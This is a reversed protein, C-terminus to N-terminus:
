KKTNAIFSDLDTFTLQNKKLWQYNKNWWKYNLLFKIKETSFRYRILRAPVGGVIAYPAVNKTVVAGAGIIAGDGIYCGDLIIVGDGVWVDNGIVIKKTEEFYSKDAFTIQAQRKTSFFIPHTSVFYKSPHNGLGCRVNSAISCFKGIQTNHIITRDSIYSYDGLTVESLIVNDGITNYLGFVCKFIHTMAGIKLKRNIYKIEYYLAESLRKIYVTLPNILVISLINM